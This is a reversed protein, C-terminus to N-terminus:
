VSVIEARKIGDHVLNADLKGVRNRRMQPTM